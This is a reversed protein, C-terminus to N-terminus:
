QDNGASVETLANVFEVASEITFGKQEGMHSHFRDRERRRAVEIDEGEKPEVIILSEVLQVVYRSQGSGALFLLWGNADSSLTFTEGFINATYIGDDDPETLVEFMKVPKARAKPTTAPTARRAPVRSSPM